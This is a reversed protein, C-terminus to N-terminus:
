QGKYVLPLSFTPGAITEKESLLILVNNIQKNDNRDNLELCHKAVDYKCYKLDVESIIWGKEVKEDKDGMVKCGM